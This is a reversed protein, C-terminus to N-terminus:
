QRGGMLANIVEQRRSTDDKPIYVGEYDSNSYAGPIGQMKGAEALPDFKVDPFFFDQDMTQSMAAIQAIYDQWLRPNAQARTKMENTVEKLTQRAVQPSSASQIAKVSYTIGQQELAAISEEPVNTGTNKFGRLSDAQQFFGGATARTAGVRAVENGRIAPQSITSNYDEAVKQANTQATTVIQMVKQNEANQAMMMKFWSDETPMRNYYGTQAQQLGSQDRAQQDFWELEKGLKDVELGGKQLGQQLAPEQYRLNIDGAQIGQQKGRVDLPHMEDSQRMEQQARALQAKQLPSAAQWDFESTAEGRTMGRVSPAGFKSVVPTTTDMGMGAALSYDRAPDRTDFVGAQPSEYQGTQPNFVSLQRGQPPQISIPGGATGMQNSGPETIQQSMLEKIAQQRATKEQWEPDLYMDAYHQIIPALGAFPDGEVEREIEGLWRNQGIPVIPYQPLPNIYGM